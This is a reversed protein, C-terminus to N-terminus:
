LPIFHLADFRLEAEEMTRRLLEAEEAEALWGMGCDATIISPLPILRGPIHHELCHAEMAMAATTTPFTVIARLKKERM